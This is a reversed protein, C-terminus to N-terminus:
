FELEFTLQVAMFYYQVDHIHSTLSSGGLLFMCLWLDMRIDRAM